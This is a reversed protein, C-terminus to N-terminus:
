LSGKVGFCHDLQLAVRNGHIHNLSRKTGNSTWLDLCHNYLAEWLSFGTTTTTPTNIDTIHHHQDLLIILEGGKTTSM